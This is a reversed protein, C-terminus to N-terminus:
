APGSLGLYAALDALEAHLDAEIQALTVGPEPYANILQLQGLRRDAKVDARAVLRDGLLFPMVYYGYVRQSAPLYYELRYRFGFLAETRDRHFVRNDFPSLLARTKLRTPTVADRHRYWPQRQGEVRVPTVVAAAVLDDLAAKTQALPMRYYDAVSKASAVGLAQAARATLAAIQQAHNLHGSPPPVITDSLAYVREFQPTRGAATVEGTLFLYELAGKAVTWNGWPNGTRLKPRDSAVLAHMQKATKPGDRLVARVQDVADPHDQAAKRTQYWAYHEPIRRWAFLHYLDAPVFSAEHAWTEVLARPPRASLADVWARDFPGLRSFFPLYHAREVVNVADIQIVGLRGAVGLVHRRTVKAPRRGFGQAALAIRRAERRSLM